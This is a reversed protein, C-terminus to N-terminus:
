ASGGSRKASETSPTGCPQVTVSSPPPWGTAAAITAVLSLVASCSRRSTGSFAAIPVVCFKVTVALPWLVSTVRGTATVSALSRGALSVM